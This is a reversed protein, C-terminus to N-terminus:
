IHKLYIQKDVYQRTLENIRKSTDDVLDFHHYDEPRGDIVAPEYEMIYESITCFAEIQLAFEEICSEIGYKLYTEYLRTAINTNRSYFFCFNPVIHINEFRWHYKALNEFQNELFLILNSDWNREPTEKILTRIKDAYGFPYGYIPCQIQPGKKILKWFTEDLPKIIQVDWDLFLYETYIQEAMKIALLKHAFHNLVSSIEPQTQTECMLITDYGMGKFRENNENGWVMVVEKEFLPKTPVEDWTRDQNGWFARIVIM